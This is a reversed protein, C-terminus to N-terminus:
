GAPRLGEGRRRRRARRWLRRRVRRRRWGALLAPGDRRLNEPRDRAEKLARAGRRAARGLPASCDAVGAGWALCLRRDRTGFPPPALRLLRLRLRLRRGGAGGRAGGRARRRAGRRAGRVRRTLVLGGLRAPVRGRRLQRVAGGRGNRPQRLGGLPRRLRALGEDGDEPPTGRGPRGLRGIASLRQQRLRRLKASPQRRVPPERAGELAVSGPQRPRTEAAGHAASLNRRGARHRCRRRPERARCAVLVRRWRPCLLM